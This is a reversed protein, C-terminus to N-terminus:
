GGWDPPGGRLALVRGPVAQPLRYVPMSRELTPGTTKVFCAYHGRCVSRLLCPMIQECHPCLEAVVGLDIIETVTGWFKPM